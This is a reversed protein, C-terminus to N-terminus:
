KAHIQISIIIPKGNRLHLTTAISPSFIFEVIFRNLGQLIDFGRMWPNPLTAGDFM